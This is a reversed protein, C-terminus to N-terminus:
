REPAGSQNSWISLTTPNTNASASLRVAYVGSVGIRFTSVGAAALTALAVSVYDCPANPTAVDITAWPGGNVAQIEAVFTDLAAAGTNEVAIMMLGDPIDVVFTGVITNGTVAVVIDTADKRAYGM